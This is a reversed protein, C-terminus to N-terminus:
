LLIILTIILASLLVGTTLGAFFGAVFTPSSKETMSRTEETVNILTELTFEMCDKRTIANLLFPCQKDQFLISPTEVSLMWAFFTNILTSVTIGGDPASYVLGARVYVSSGSCNLEMSVINSSYVGGCSRCLISARLYDVLQIQFWLTRITTNNVIGHKSSCVIFARM